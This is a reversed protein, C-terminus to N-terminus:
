QHEEAPHEFYELAARAKARMAKLSLEQVRTEILQRRAELVQALEVRGSGQAALLTDLRARSAPLTARNFNELREGALRWEAWAADLEARLQRLHDARQERAREALQLKAELLRDQKRERFLPLEFAVQVMLMDSRHAGQRVAYGFELTRDSATAERALAVDADAVGLARLHMAHQPHHELNQSLTALPPPERWAPLDAPLEFAGADPVWRRLMARAKEAQSALELRRDAAQSLMQRSAFVEAQSGRGSAVGIQALEISRGIEGALEGIAREAAVAQWADLWALAVERLIAQRQGGTEAKAQAAEALARAERLRRKDGGPLMQEYSIVLQTMDEWPASPFNRAPLNLLGVKLRPDPLAGEAPAAAALARANLELAALAPQQALARQRAVDLTLVQAGAPALWVALLLIAIRM